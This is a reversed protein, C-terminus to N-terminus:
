LWDLTVPTFKVSQVVVAKCILKSLRYVPCYGLWIEKFFVRVM